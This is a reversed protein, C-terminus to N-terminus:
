IWKWAPILDIGDLRDEQNYTIIVANTAGTNKIANQIGRLERDQNDSNIEWCSQVAMSVAEKEKVLFDCESNSDKYYFIDKFQRRLKLYVFNELRRGLDKSFSLSNAKALAPDISYIKKPNVLQKKISSSYLPIFDMIYSENLFDCYDIVTM